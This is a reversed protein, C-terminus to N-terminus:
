QFNNSITPSVIRIEFLGFLGCCGTRLNKESDYTGFYGFVCPLKREISIFFIVLFLEGVVSKISVTRSIHLRCLIWSFRIFLVFVYSIISYFKNVYWFHINKDYKNLTGHKNCFHIFSNWYRPCEDILKELSTYVDM